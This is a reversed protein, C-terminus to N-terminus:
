NYLVAFFFHNMYLFYETNYKYLYVQFNKAQKEAADIQNTQSELHKLNYSLKMVVLCLCIWFTNTTDKPADGAARKAPYRTVAHATFWSNKRLYLAAATATQRAFNPTYCFCLSLSTIWPAPLRYIFLSLVHPSHSFFTHYALAKWTFTHFAIWFRTELSLFIAKEPTKKNWVNLYINHVNNFNELARSLSIQCQATYFISTVDSTNDLMFM